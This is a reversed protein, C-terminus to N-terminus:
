KQLYGILYQNRFYGSVCGYHDYFTTDMETVVIKKAKVMVKKTQGFPNRPDKTEVEYSCEYRMDIEAM